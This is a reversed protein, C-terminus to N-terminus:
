GGYKPGDQPPNGAGVGAGAGSFFDAGASALFGDVEALGVVADVLGAEVGDFGAGEVLGAVVGDFGVM